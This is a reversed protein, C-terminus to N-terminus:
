VTTRSPNRRLDTVRAGANNRATDARTMTFGLTATPDGGVQVVLLM